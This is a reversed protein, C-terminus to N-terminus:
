ATPNGIKGYHSAQRTPERLRLQHDYLTRIGPALARDGQRTKRVLLRASPSPQRSGTPLAAGRIRVVLYPVQEGLRLPADGIVEVVARGRMLV